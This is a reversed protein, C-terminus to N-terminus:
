GATTGQERHVVEAEEGEVGEVREEGVRGDGRRPTPLSQTRCGANWKVEDPNDTWYCEINFEHGSKLWWFTRRHTSTVCLFFGVLSLFYLATFFGLIEFPRSTTPLLM